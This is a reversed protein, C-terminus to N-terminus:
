KSDKEEHFAVTTSEATMYFTSNPLPKLVTPSPLTEAIEKGEVSIIKSLTKVLEDLPAHLNRLAHTFVKFDEEILEGYVKSQGYLAAEDVARRAREILARFHIIRAFNMVTKMGQPPDPPPEPGVDIPEEITPPALFSM